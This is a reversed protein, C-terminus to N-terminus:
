YVLLGCLPIYSNSGSLDFWKGYMQNCNMMAYREDIGDHNNPEGEEWYKKYGTEGRISWCAASLFIPAELLMM